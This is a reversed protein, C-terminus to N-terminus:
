AVNPTTQVAACDTHTFQYAVLESWVEVGYKQGWFEPLLKIDPEVIGEGDPDSLKCEGIAQDTAKLEVVLLQEFECGGQKSLREQLENRTIRLGRPFGM